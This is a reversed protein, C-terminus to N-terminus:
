TAKVRFPGISIWASVNLCGRFKISLLQVYKMASSVAMTVELAILYRM